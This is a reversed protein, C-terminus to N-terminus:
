PHAHSNTPPEVPLADPIWARRGAGIVNSVSSVPALCRRSNRACGPPDELDCDTAGLLASGITLDKSPVWLPTVLTPQPPEVSGVAPDTSTPSDGSHPKISGVTPDAHGWLPPPTKNKHWLGSAVHTAALLDGGEEIPIWSFAYRAPVHLGGQHVQEIVGKRLLESLGSERLRNSRCGRAAMQARTCTSCGNHTYKYTAILAALVKHGGGSLGSIAESKMVAIPLKLFGNDSEKRGKMKLRTRAM